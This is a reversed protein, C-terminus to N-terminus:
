AQVLGKAHLGSASEVRFRITQDNVADLCLRCPANCTISAVFTTKMVQTTPRDLYALSCDIVCQVIQSGPLVPYGPFHEKALFSTEPFTFPVACVGPARHEVAGAEIIREDSPPMAKQAEPAQRGPMGPVSMVKISFHGIAEGTRNRLDGTVSLCSGMDRASAEISVVGQADMASVDLRFTDIQAPLWRGEPTRLAYAVKVAFQHVGELCCTYATRRTGYRYNRLDLHGSFSSTAEHQTVWECLTLFGSSM